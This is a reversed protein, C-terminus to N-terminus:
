SEVDLNYSGDKLRRLINELSAMYKAQKDLINNADIRASEIRNALSLNDKQPDIPASASTDTDGKGADTEVVAPKKKAFLGRLLRSGVSPAVDVAQSPNSPEASPVSAEPAPEPDPIAVDIHAGSSVTLTATEVQSGTLADACEAGLNDQFVCIYYFTSENPESVGAKTHDVEELVTVPGCNLECFEKLQSATVKGQITLLKKLDDTISM